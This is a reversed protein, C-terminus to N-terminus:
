LSGRLQRQRWSVQWGGDSCRTM